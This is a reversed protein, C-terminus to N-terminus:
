KILFPKRLDISAGKYRTVSVTGGRNDQLKGNLATYLLYDADFAMLEKKSTQVLRAKKANMKIEIKKQKLEPVVVWEVLSQVRSVQYSLNRVQLDVPFSGQTITMSGQLDCGKGFKLDYRVPENFLLLGIWQQPSIVPCGSTSFKAGGKAEEVLRDITRQPLEQEKGLAATGAIAM